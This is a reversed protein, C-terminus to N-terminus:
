SRPSRGTPSGTATPSVGARCSPSTTPRAEGRRPVGAVLRSKGVGPEGYITVLHPRQEATSGSSPRGSCISRASAVWRDAGVPRSRGAPGDPERRLVVVADVPEAKGKLSLAPLPAWRSGPASRVTRASAVIQGPEAATQLRAATNVADGTVMPEGPCSTSRPWCRAPTCGSASRSSSTTSRSAAGREGARAAGAHAPRRAARPRRRGRAGAAGRVRGHGRRRHVERRHRGRGRDRRADRRLLYRLVDRLREPDLQEGLTTSGTVDAFLVTVLKREEGRVVAEITEVAAGCEPCYRADDPLSAGCSACTRGLAAGCSVCFSADPPNDAGCSSCTM